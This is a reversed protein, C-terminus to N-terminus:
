TLDMIPGFHARPTRLVGFDTGERQDEVRLNYCQSGQPPPQYVYNANLLDCTANNDFSHIDLQLLDAVFDDDDDEEDLNNEFNHDYNDGTEFSEFIIPPHDVLLSQNSHDIFSQHEQPYHKEAHVEM